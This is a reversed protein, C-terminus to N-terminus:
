DEEGIATFNTAFLNILDCFPMPKDSWIAQLLIKIPKNDTDYPWGWDGGYPNNTYKKTGDSSDCIKIKTHNM